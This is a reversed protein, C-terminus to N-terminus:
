RVVSSGRRMVEQNEAKRGLRSGVAILAVALGIGVLRLWGETEVNVAIILFFLGLASFRIQDSM